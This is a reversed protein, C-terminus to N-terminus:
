RNWDQRCSPCVHSYFERININDLYGQTVLQIQDGSYPHQRQSDCVAYYENADGDYYVSHYMDEAPFYAYQGAYRAVADEYLQTAELVALYILVMSLTDLCCDFPSQGDVDIPCNDRQPRNLAAAYRTTCEDGKAICGQAHLGSYGDNPIGFAAFLDATQSYEDMCVPCVLKISNSNNFDASQLHYRVGSGYPKGSLMDYMKNIMEDCWGAIKPAIEMLPIKHGDANVVVYNEPIKNNNRAYMDNEALQKCLNLCTIEYTSYILITRSSQTSRYLSEVFAYIPNFGWDGTWLFEEHVLNGRWDLGHSYLIHNSWQCPIADDPRTGPIPSPAASFTEFDVFSLPTPLSLLENAFGSDHIHLSMPM